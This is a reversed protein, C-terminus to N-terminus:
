MCAGTDIVAAAVAFASCVSCVKQATQHPLIIDTETRKKEEEKRFVNQLFVTQCSVSRLECRFHNNAYLKCKTSCEFPIYWGDIPSIAGTFPHPHFSSLFLSFSEDTTDATSMRCKMLFKLKEEQAYKKRQTTNFLFIAFDTQQRQREISM